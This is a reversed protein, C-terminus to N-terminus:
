VMELADICLYQKSKRIIHCTKSLKGTISDTHKKKWSKTNDLKLGLFKVYNSQLLIKTRM